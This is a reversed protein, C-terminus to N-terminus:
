GSRVRGLFTGVERDLASSQDSLAEASALLEAASTGTQRAAETVDAINDAVEQTGASALQVSRAIENTAASQETVASAVSSTISSITDITKGIATIADVAHGTESQIAAVQTQIDETAQATQNALTKVENAVVAFGKGADGARAAEITANLALLNTQSAIDTIMSVVQGIRTAADALGQVMHNADNAEGVARDAVGTADAVLRSIEGISASLEETASAVTAVNASANTSAEVVSTSKSLTLEATGALGEASGRLQTSASSVQGVVSGIVSAFKGTAEDMAARHREREAAQQQQQQDLEEAHVLSDRFGRLAKAMAGIEDGRAAEAIDGGYDRNTVREMSVSLRKIAAMQARTVLFLVLCSLLGIALAVGITPGTIEELLVFFTARPMATAISGIVAGSADKIPEYRVLYVKGLVNAEGDYAIGQKFVADAIAGQPFKSGVARKGDPTTVNTAVRIEGNFISVAIGLMEKLRDPIEHNGDVVYDGWVLKGDVLHAGGGSGGKLSLVENLVRVNGQQSHVAQRALSSSVISLIVYVIATAALAFGLINVAVIRHTISLRSIYSRM